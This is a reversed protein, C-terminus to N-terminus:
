VAETKPERVLLANVADATSVGDYLIRYIQRSIPMDVAYTHALQMVERATGVGEVVQGIDAMAQQAGVGQGIAIGFRRNRSQNDTCTLVLDGLGALGMFTDRQGGMALGLRIMEALGRTVLAARSNAGFGLGDAIGTAIALVNKVAGGLQVGTLDTNTYVRFREDHLRALLDGTFDQDQCALTVATPLGAAVEAAFTPGSLVALPTQQGFVEAAVQDLLQGSGPDLGKSAWAIRLGSPKIARIQVLVDRFAFSPVVVLIDNVRTVIDSLTALPEIAAPLEVDPLFAQNRRSAQLAMIHEPDHSWLLTPQGNRALQIALATGWSGAGIVGIPTHLTAPM